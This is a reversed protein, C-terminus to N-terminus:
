WGQDWVNGSGPRSNDPYNYRSDFEDQEGEGVNADGDGIESGILITCKIAIDIVEVEPSIYEKKMTM